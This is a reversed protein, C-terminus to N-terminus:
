ERLQIVANEVFNYALEPTLVGFQNRLARRHIAEGIRLRRSNKQSRRSEAINRTSGTAEVCRRGSASLNHSNAIPLKARAKESIRACLSSHLPRDARGDGLRCPRYACASAQM